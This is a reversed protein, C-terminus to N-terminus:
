TQFIAIEASVHMLFLLFASKRAESILNEASIDQSKQDFIFNDASVDQLHEFVFIFILEFRCFDRFLWLRSLLPLVILDLSAMLLELLLRRSSRSGGFPDWTVGLLGGLAGLLLGLSRWFPRVFM